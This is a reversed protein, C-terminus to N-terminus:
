RCLISRLKPTANDEQSIGGAAEASINAGSRPPVVFRCQTVIPRDEIGFYRRWPAAKRAKTWSSM